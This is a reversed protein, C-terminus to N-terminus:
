LKTTPFFTEPKQRQLQLYYRNSGGQFKLFPDNQNFTKRLDASVHLAGLLKQLGSLFIYVLNLVFKETKLFKAKNILDKVNFAFIGEPVKAGYRKLIEKAQHEHINM